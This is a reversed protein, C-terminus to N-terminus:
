TAAGCRCLWDVRGVGGLIGLIGLIGLTELTGLTEFTGTVWKEEFLTM